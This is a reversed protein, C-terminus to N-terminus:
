LHATLIKDAEKQLMRMTKILLTPGISIRAVGLERIQPITLADPKHSPGVNLRGDFEKVLIRVEQSSLGRKRGWVFVTTAGAAFTNRGASLSKPIAGGYVLVDCRANVVFDPLGKHRAITIARKIREAAVDPPYLKNHKDCDELNVGVVGLDILSGIAQELSDGYGDRIDVTLPKDFQKAVTAIKSIAVLHSDLDFGEGYSL